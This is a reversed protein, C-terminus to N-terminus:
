IELGFANRDGFNGYTFRNLFPFCAIGDFAAALTPVGIAPIVDAFGLLPIRIPILYLLHSGTFAGTVSVAKIPKGGCLLCENEELLIEFPANANGAGSDALLARTVDTGGSSYILVVEIVPRDNQLPWRARPM